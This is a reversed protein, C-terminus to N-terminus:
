YDWGKEFLGIDYKTVICLSNLDTPSKWFTDNLASIHSKLCYAIECYKPTKPKQQTKQTNKGITKALKKKM